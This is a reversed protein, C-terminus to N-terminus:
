DLDGREKLLCEILSKKVERCWEMEQSVHKLPMAAAAIEDCVTM